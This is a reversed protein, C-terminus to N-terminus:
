PFQFPVIWCRFYDPIRDMQGDQHSTDINYLTGLRCLWFRNCGADVLQYIRTKFHPSRRRPPIVSTILWPRTDVASMFPSAGRVGQFWRVLCQTLSTFQSVKSWGSSVHAPLIHACLYCWQYLFRLLICVLHIAPHIDALAADGQRGGM